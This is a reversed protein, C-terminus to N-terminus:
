FHGGCADMGIPSGDPMGKPISNKWENPDDMFQEIMSLAHMVHAKEMEKGSTKKNLYDKLEKIKYLSVARVQESADQNMALKMLHQLVLKETVRGIEAFYADTDDTFWTAQFLANITTQLGPNRRDRAHQEVLRTARQPHLYMTILHNASSEAAAMPDFTLGTRSKFSERTRWSNFTKPPILQLINKPIALEKSSLTKMLSSIAKMQTQYDVIRAAIPTDGKSSYEYDVGGVVKVAAEVQYRHALFLPVLVEELNSLPTNMPINNLGFNKLATARVGMLRNLESVPDSGNDWLHAYPHASGAPRADADSIYRLGLNQNEKLIELLAKAHDTGKPFDQYGYLITRKDWAGIGVDYADDFNLSGDTNATIYPHPYDMVSARDNTSAAFNHALGITHGIEHAALQRLRALAMELMKPSVPKGEEYAKILGQAILFDQRVRLSGLSVHGKIMEGTRPDTVSSGYSWGRTSRHVWQIVNYRVDMPDVDDPLVKVQFADKYGAAEFAQNWWSAGKILASRIPEPAGRDVYYVIPEVAESMTATPDKKELRHRQIFKKVLPQDIPTAYDQYSIANFGSRPDFVRPEYNADPLEIFSHHMRLTLAEATPTVSRLYGGKAKGVFTITAEFETNKPFNKCMQPYIASRTKDIKYSGQNRSELRAAVRHADRLLFSTADIIVSNEKEDKVKFGWIVSQAFAQEVSESEAPNDSVARYDYNPQMMLVKNGVRVFKVIRTAGLQGRDLGIDNSGMGAPLSNVYLFETDFKDIELLITGTKEDWTFNFFGNKQDVMNQKLITNKPTNTTTPISSKANCSALIFLSLLLITRIM